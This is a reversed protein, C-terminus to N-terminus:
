PLDAVPSSDAVSVTGNLAEIAKLASDHDEFNVFGFGRSKGETGKEKAEEGEFLQVKCSVCPPSFVIGDCGSSSLASGTREM